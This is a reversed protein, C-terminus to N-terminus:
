NAQSLIWGIVVLLCLVVGVIMWMPKQVYSIDGEEEASIYNGCHPCQESEDYIQEECYPCTILDDSDDIEEAGEFFLYNECHPCRESEEYIEVGCFPCDITASDADYDNM